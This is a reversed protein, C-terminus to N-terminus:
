HHASGFVDRTGDVAVHHCVREGLLEGRTLAETETSKDFLLESRAARRGIQGFLRFARWGLRRFCDLRM